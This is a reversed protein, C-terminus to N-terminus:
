VAVLPYFRALAALEGHAEHESLTAQAARLREACHTRGAQPGLALGAGAWAAQSCAAEFPLGLSAARELSQSFLAEAAPWQGARALLDARLREAQILLLVHGHAEASAAAVDAAILLEAKASSSM